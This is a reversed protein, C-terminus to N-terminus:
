ECASRAAPEFHDMRAERQTSYHGNSAKGYQEEGPCYYLATHPDIWVQISPDGKLQVEPAPAEAIGLSILARDWSSLTPVAPQPSSSAPWLLAVLAVFIATGLYVDARRFRLKVRLDRFRQLASPVVPEAGTGAQDVISTESAELPTLEDPTVSPFTPFPFQALDPTTDDETAAGLPFDVWPTDAAPNTPWKRKAPVDKIEHRDVATRGVAGDLPARAPLAPKSSKGSASDATSSDATSSDSMSSATIAADTILSDPVRPRNFIPGSRIAKDLGLKEFLSDQPGESQGGFQGEPFSQEVLEHSASPSAPEEPRPSVIHPNRETAETSREPWSGQEQSMLWMSAWNRQLREGPRLGGNGCGECASESDLKLAGCHQCFFATAKNAVPKAIAEPEQKRQEQQLELERERRKRDNHEQITFAAALLGQFSKEDLSLHNTTPRPQTLNPRNSSM